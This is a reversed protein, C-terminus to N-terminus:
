DDRCFGTNILHRHIRSELWPRIRLKELDVFGVHGGYQTLEIDITDSLENESPIVVSSMFPDDKAHIITVPKTIGSLYYTSSNQQYYDEADIFGNIPATFYEDFDRITRISAPDPFDRDSEALLNKKALMKSILSKLLISQYIKSFGRNLTDSSIDLRFPVSVAIASSVEMATKAEGMYKLVRNGGVSYGLLAIENINKSILHNIVRRLDETEGSHYSRLLRNPEGGCGRFHMLVIAIKHHHCYNFIRKVYPSQISGELGHMVLLTQQSRHPGWLLDIFDGDDLEIREKEFIPAPPNSINPLITQLHPHKVLWHPHFKSDLKM